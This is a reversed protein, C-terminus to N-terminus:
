LPFAEENIETSLSSTISMYNEDLDRAKYLKEGVNAIRTAELVIAPSITFTVRSLTVDCNHLHAVFLKALEHHFQAREDLECFEFCGHHRFCSVALPCAQLERLNTPEERIIKGGKHPNRQRHREVSSDSTTEEDYEFDSGRDM